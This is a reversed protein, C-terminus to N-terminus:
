KFDLPNHAIHCNICKNEEPNHEKIDVLKTTKSKPAIGIGHCSGCFARTSPKTINSKSPNAIHAKGAGHCNQCILTKHKGTMKIKNIPEHCMICVAASDGKKGKVANKMMQMMPSHPNHCLTCKKKTNHKATDVQMVASSLRGAMKYHCRACFARTNPKVLMDKKPNLIHKNGPGHCTQCNIFKHAGSKKLSDFATHCKICANIDAYNLDNSAIDELADARYHGYKGFSKPTLYHRIILFLGVFLTFAILLRTIQKPM